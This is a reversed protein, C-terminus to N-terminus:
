SDPLFKLCPQTAAFAGLKFVSLKTENGKSIAYYVSATRTVTLETYGGKTASVWNVIDSM